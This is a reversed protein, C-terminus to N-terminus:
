VSHSAVQLLSCWVHECDCLVSYADRMRTAHMTHLCPLSHAFGTHIHIHTHTHTHLSGYRQGHMAAAVPAASPAPTASGNVLSHGLALQAAAVDADLFRVDRVKGTGSRRTCLCHM